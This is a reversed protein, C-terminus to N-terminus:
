HDLPLGNLVPLAGSLREVYAVVGPVEPHPGVLRITTMRGSATRWTYITPAIRLFRELYKTTTWGCNLRAQVAAAFATDVSM